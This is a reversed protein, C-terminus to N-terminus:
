ASANCKWVNAKCIPCQAKYEVIWQDICTAHFGIYFSYLHKKCHGCALTRITNSLKNMCISCDDNKPSTLYQSPFLTNIENRKILIFIHYYKTLPHKM